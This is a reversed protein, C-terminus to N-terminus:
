CVLKELLRLGKRITAVDEIGLADAQAPLRRKDAALHTLVRALERLVTEGYATQALMLGARLSAAEKQAAIAALDLIDRSHTAVDLGRDANALFKEAVASDFTLAPIGLQHDLTGVLDIRAELVIEFKIRVDEILFFTRIGDRDARVERALAVPKKLIAGLSIDSIAERLKRFGTRSSCLFDIDRSERYEGFKLALLTGGGFYCACDGLFAANLSQLLKAILQHHPRRFKHM